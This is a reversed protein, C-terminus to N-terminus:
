AGNSGAAQLAESLYHHWQTDPVKDRVCMARALRELDTITSVPEEQKERGGPLPLDVGTFQSFTREIFDEPFKVGHVHPRGDPTALYRESVESIVVDPRECRLLDYHVATSAVAVIRSFHCNLFPLLHTSNSTGFLVLRPRDSHETEFVDVQGPKFTRNTFM